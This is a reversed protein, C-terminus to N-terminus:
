KKEGEEEVKYKPKNFYEEEIPAHDPLYMKKIIKMFVKREEMDLFEYKNLFAVLLSNDEIINM